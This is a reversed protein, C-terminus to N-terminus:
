SQQGRRNGGQELGQNGENLQLKAQAVVEDCNWELPVLVFIADSQELGFFVQSKAFCLNCDM